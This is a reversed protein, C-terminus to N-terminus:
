AIALRDFVKYLRDNMEDSIVIVDFFYGVGEVSNLMSDLERQLLRSCISCWITPLRKYM